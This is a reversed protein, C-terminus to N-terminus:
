QGSFKKASLLLEMNVSSYTKGSKEIHYNRFLDEAIDKFAARIEPESSSCNLQSLKSIIDMNLPNECDFYQIYLTQLYVVM